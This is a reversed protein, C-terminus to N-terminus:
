VTAVRSAQEGSTLAVISASDDINAHIVSETSESPETAWGELLVASRICTQKVLTSSKFPYLLINVEKTAIFVSDGDEPLTSTTSTDLM